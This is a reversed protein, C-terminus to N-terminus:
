VLNVYRRSKVTSFQPKILVDDINGLDPTPNLM